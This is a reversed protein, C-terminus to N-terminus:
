IEDDAPFQFLYKEALQKRVDDIVSVSIKSLTDAVKQIMDKNLESQAYQERCMEMAKIAKEKTSYKAMTIFNDGTLDSLSFAIVKGDHFARLTTEEYPLDFGGNQSIIRMVLEEKRIGHACTAIRLAYMQM